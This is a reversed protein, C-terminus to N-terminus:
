SQGTPRVSVFSLILTPPHVNSPQQNTAVFNPTCYGVVVVVFAEEGVGGRTSSSFALLCFVNSTQCSTKSWSPPPSGVQQIKARTYLFSLPSSLLEVCRVLARLFSTATMWSKRGRTGILPLFHRYVISTDTSVQGVTLKSLLKQM